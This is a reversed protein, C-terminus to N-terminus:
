GLESPDPTTTDGTPLHYVVEQLSATRGNFLWTVTASASGVCSGCTPDAALFVGPALYSFTEGQVTLDTIWKGQPLAQVGDLNGVNDEQVLAGASDYIAWAAMSSSTGIHCTFSTVTFAEEGVYRPVADTLTFESTGGMQSAVEGNVLLQARPAGEGLVWDACKQPVELTMNSLEDFTLAVDAEPEPEPAPEPELELADEEEVVPEEPEADEAAEASQSAGPDPAPASGAGFRFGVFFGLLGGLVACVTVITVPLWPFGTKRSSPQPGQQLAAPPAQEPGPPPPVSM